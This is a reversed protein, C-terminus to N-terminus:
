LRWECHSDGVAPHLLLISHSSFLLFLPLPNLITLLCANMSEGRNERERERETDRERERGGGWVKDTDSGRRRYLSTLWHM